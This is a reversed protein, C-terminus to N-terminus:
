CCAGPNRCGDCRGTLSVSLLYFCIHLLCHAPLLTGQYEPLNEMSTVNAYSVQTSDPGAKEEMQINQTCSSCLQRFKWLAGEAKPTDGSLVKRRSELVKGRLPSEARARPWAKQVEEGGARRQPKRAKSQFSM